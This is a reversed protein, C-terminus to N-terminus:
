EKSLVKPVLIYGDESVPVNMMAEERTITEKVEDERFVNTEESLFILPAVGSTDVEELKSIFAIMKELDDKLQMREEPAFELRALTSLKDVLHDDIQM